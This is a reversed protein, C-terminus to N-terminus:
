PSYGQTVTNGPVAYAHEPESNNQPDPNAQRMLQNQRETRDALAKAQDEEHFARLKRFLHAVIPQGAANTGVPVAPCLNEEVKDWDDKVTKNYVRNGVDNIWRFVHEPYTDRVGQPVELKLDMMADMSKRRRRETVQTEARPARTM